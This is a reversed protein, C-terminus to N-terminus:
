KKNINNYINKIISIFQEKSYARKMINCVKCCPLCNDVEYGKNNDARDIGNYKFDIYSPHYDTKTSPIKGCYFCNSTILTIFLDLSINFTYNRDIAAQKYSRYLVKKIGGNDPLRKDKKFCGCSKSKGTRLSTGSVVKKVGCECLCNWFCEKSTKGSTRRYTKCENISIVEWRGFKKGIYDPPKYLGKNWPISGKIFLGKNEIDTLEVM